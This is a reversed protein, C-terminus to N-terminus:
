KCYIWINFNKNRRVSQQDGRINAYAVLAIFAAFMGGIIWWVRRDAKDMYAFKGAEMMYLRADTPSFNGYHKIYLSCKNCADSDFKHKCDRHMRRLAEERSPLM